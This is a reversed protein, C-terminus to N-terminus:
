TYTVMVNHVHSFSGALQLQSVLTHTSVHELWQEVRSVGVRGFISFGTSDSLWSSFSFLTEARPRTNGFWHSTVTVRDLKVRLWNFAFDGPYM